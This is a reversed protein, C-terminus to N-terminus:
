TYAGFILVLPKDEALLDEYLNIVKNDISRLTFDIAQEGEPIGRQDFDPAGLAQCGCKLETDTDDYGILGQGSLYKGSPAPRGNTPLDLLYEPLLLFEASIIDMEFNHSGAIHLDGKDDSIGEGIREIKYPLRSEPELSRLLAYDINAELGEGNFIFEFAPGILNFKLKGQAGDKIKNGWVDKEHLELFKQESPTHNKASSHPLNVVFLIMLVATFSVMLRRM